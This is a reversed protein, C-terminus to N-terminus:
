VDLIVTATYGDATAVFSLRHYTVGKVIDRPRGRHGRVIARLGRADLTLREVAEPVLAETEALFELEDLWQALLIDREEGALAVETVAPAGAAGDDALERLARLAQVFVGEQTAAHLELELEATHEVWRYGDQAM